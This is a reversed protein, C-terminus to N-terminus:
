YTDLKKYNVKKLLLELDNISTKPVKVYKINPIEFTERPAKQNLCGKGTFHRSCKIHDMM